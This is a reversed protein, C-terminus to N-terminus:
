TRKIKTTLLTAFTAKERVVRKGSFDITLSKVGTMQIAKEPLMKSARCVVEMRSETM